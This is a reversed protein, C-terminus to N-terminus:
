VFYRVPFTSVCIRRRLFKVRVIATSIMSVAYKVILMYDNKFISNVTIHIFIQFDTIYCYIKGEVALRLHVGESPCIYGQPYM